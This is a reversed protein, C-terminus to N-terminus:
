SLAGIERYYDIARKFSEKIPIKPNWGLEKRAKSSDYYRYNYSWRITETDIVPKDSIKSWLAALLYMPYYTWRPLVLRIRPKRLIDAILNYRDIFNINTNSLIYRQGSRGKKMALIIGEVLDEVAVTGGGSPYAFKVRNRSISQFITYRSPDIEGPGVVYPPLVITANLGKAVYELVKDEGLKKSQGYIQDKFDLFNNENLKISPKRSFGLASCSSVHVVKKVHSKLCAKMVNETGGVNIGFITGKERLTNLSSAALHYVYDNGKVANFVSTYDRIDGQIIKVKLGKLFIHSRNRAFVAVNNNKNMCLKKVLNSGIFGTGGTVLINSKTKRM